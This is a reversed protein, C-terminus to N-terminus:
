RPSSEDSAALGSMVGFSLASTTAKNLGRMADDMILTIISHAKQIKQLVKMDNTDDSSEASAKMAIKAVDNFTQALDGSLNLEFADMAERFNLDSDSEAM